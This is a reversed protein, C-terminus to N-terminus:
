ARGTWGRLSSAGASPAAPPTSPTSTATAAGSTSSATWWRRRRSRVSGVHPAGASSGSAADLAYMYGDDSGYRKLNSRNGAQREPRRPSAKWSHARHQTPVRAGSPASTSPPSQVRQGVYVVGDVVAPSSSRRGGTAFRWREAGTAADLAYLNGDSSASTSSATRGGGALLACEGGYRLALARGPPPTSPAVPQRRRQRRLRTASRGALIYWPPRSARATLGATRTSPTSPWHAAGDSVQGGVYVPRRDVAPSSSSRAGTEFKGASPAPPPTSAYLGRRRRPTSSATSSRRPPGYARFARGSGEAVPPRCARRGQSRADGPAPRTATSCQVDGEDQARSLDSGFPQSWPSSIIPVLAPSAVAPM